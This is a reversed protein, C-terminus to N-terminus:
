SSCELPIGERLSRVALFTTEAVNRLHAWPIPWAGGHRCTDLFARVEGQHGRDKHGDVRTVRAGRWLAVDKWGDIVGIRGNGFVEIREPTFASDAGAQYSVCSVSGGRHRLTIFVRDDTTELGGEKRVSEAFVREVPCGVISVCTDIAHCAEGIIRGGGVDEDQTWHGAPIFGSAFRYSMSLPHSGAMFDRVKGTAPAFRRNLGVMLIPGGAGLAAVADDIQALQERSICLPKEVFVHKGARLAAVVLEAHLNHRTAIFVVNTASDSWIENVDTTAFGFGNKQGSHVANLGKATCLGRWALGNEKRVAPLLMLRAFNGAGIFSVGLESHEIPKAELSVRRSLQRDRGPYEILVGLLPEKRQSIRDYAETAREIPFRHTTLQEVPLKGQAMLDLVAEMNRGATWRAQGIPYDQGRDEYSPDSRGPGLSFSVTFELEKQFFPARPLSLGAVGVLVIRGKTRCADAALEIPENSDTAATILVADVGQGGSFARIEQLPSGTGAADAGLARSREVRYPDLDTGFVRCGQAKLLAVCIQGILGLGIVLVREGLTVRALRVGELGIAAVSTYAAQDFSVGEPIRVCLNRPVSVVGAHPGACAVRDGPKFEQVGNGVELVTGAASYGLPLPEDLKAKVQQATQLLGEDRIKQLVRRVQDPREWAKGVLSRRALDVVYRETGASILSSVNAVVVQFPAVGPAPCERVRMTGSRVEDIIVQKM